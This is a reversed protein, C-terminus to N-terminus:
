KLKEIEWLFAPKKAGKVRVTEDTRTFLHRNTGYVRGFNGLTSPVNEAVAAYYSYASSLPFSTGLAYYPISSTEIIEATRKIASQIITQHDFATLNIESLPTWRLDYGGSNENQNAQKLDVYCAFSISIVWGRPDRGQNSFTGVEVLAHEILERDYGTEFVIENVIADRASTDSHKLFTGPLAQEGKFPNAKRKVTLIKTTSSDEDFSIVVADVTVSPRVFHDEQHTDQYWNSFEQNTAEYTYYNEDKDM